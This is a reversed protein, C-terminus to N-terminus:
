VSVVTFDWADFLWFALVIQSIQCFDLLLNSLRQKKTCGGFKLPEPYDGEMQAFCGESQTIKRVEMTDNSCRPQKGDLCM